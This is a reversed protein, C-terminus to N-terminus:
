RRGRRSGSGARSRDIITPDPLTRNGPSGAVQFGSGIRTGAKRFRADLDELERFEAESLPEKRMEKTALEEYRKRLPEALNISQSVGLNQDYEAVLIADAESLGPTDPSPSAPSTSEPRIRVDGADVIVSEGIGGGSEESKPRLTQTTTRQVGDDNVISRVVVKPDGAELGESLQEERARATEDALKRYEEKKANTANRDARMQRRFELTAQQLEARTLANAIRVRHIEAWHADATKARGAAVRMDDARNEDAIRRSEIRNAAREARTDARNTAAIAQNGARNTAAIRRSEALNTAAIEQRKAELELKGRAVLAARNEARLTRDLAAQRSHAQQAERAEALTKAAAIRERGRADWQADRVVAREAAIAQNEARIRDDRAQDQLKYERKKEDRIVRAEEDRIARSEATRAERTRRRAAAATIGSVAAVGAAAQPPLHASAALGAGTAAVVPHTVIDGMVQRSSPHILGGVGIGGLLEGYAESARQQDPTLDLWEEGVHGTLEGGVASGAGGGVAALLNQWWPTAKITKAIPGGGFGSVADLAAGVGQVSATYPNGEDLSQLAQRGRRAGPVLNVIDGMVGGKFADWMARRPSPFTQGSYPDDTAGAPVGSYAPDIDPRNQIFPGPSDAGRGLVAVRSRRERSSASRRRGRGEDLRGSPRPGLGSITHGAVDSIAPIIEPLNQGLERYGQGGAYGVVAGLHPQGVLSGAGGGIIAGATPLTELLTNYANSPSDIGAREMAHSVHGRWNIPEIGKDALWKNAGDSEATQEAPETWIAYGSKIASPRDENAVWIPGVSGDPGYKAMEGPDYEDHDEPRDYAMMVQGKHPDNQGANTPDGTRAPSTPSTPDQRMTDTRKINGPNNLRFSVSPGKNDVPPGHMSGPHWGEWKQQVDMLANLEADSVDRMSKEGNSANAAALMENVHAETADPSWRKIAARVTRDQYSKTKWLDRQARRGSEYDPFSQFEDDVAGLQTGGYRSAQAM